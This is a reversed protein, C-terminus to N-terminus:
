KTIVYIKGIFVVMFIFNNVETPNKKWFLYMLFYNLIM